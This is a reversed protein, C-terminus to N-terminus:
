TAAVAPQSTKNNSVLLSAMSLDMLPILSRQSFNNALPFNLRSCTSPILALICGAYVISANCPQSKNISAMISFKSILAENNFFTSGKSASFAIM